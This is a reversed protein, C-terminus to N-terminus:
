ERKVELAKHRNPPGLESAVEIRRHEWQSGAGDRIITFFLSRDLVGWQRFFAVLRQIWSEVGADDYLLLDVNWCVGTHEDRDRIVEGDGQLLNNLAHELNSLHYLPGNSSWLGVEGLIYLKTAVSGGGRAGFSPREAAASSWLATEGFIYLKTAV